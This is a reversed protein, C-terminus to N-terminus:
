KALKQTGVLNHSLDWVLSAVSDPMGHSGNEIGLVRMVDIGEANQYSGVYYKADYTELIETKTADIGRRFRM